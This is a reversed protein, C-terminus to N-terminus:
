PMMVVSMSEHLSHDQHFLRENAWDGPGCFCGYYMIRRRIGGNDSVPSQHNALVIMMSDDDDGFRVISGPTIDSVYYRPEGLGNTVM